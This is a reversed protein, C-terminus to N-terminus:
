KGSSGVKYKMLEACYKAPVGAEQLQKLKKQKIAEVKALYQDSDKAVKVGEELMLARELKKKESNASIQALVEAQNQKRLEQIQFALGAYSAPCVM